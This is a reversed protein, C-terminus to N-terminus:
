GSAVFPYTFLTLHVLNLSFHVLMSAEVRQTVHYAAGYGIGALMALVAYRIGGGMHALGFAAAAAFLAVLGAAPVKARLASSLHQQLLGRFFTEEALCTVLLNAPAWLILIGPWKPDWAVFGMALAPVVLLAPTLVTATATAAASRGWAMRRQPQVCVAYLLFGALATDYNWYLTYPAASPSLVVADVVRVNHIRVAETCVWALILRPNTGFPLKNDGIATMVLKYLGNVRKYQHRNGPNSRPLSCLAMTRALFGRDPDAESAGVLRNVQDALTFGRQPPRDRRLAKVPGPLDALAEAIPVLEGRQRRM